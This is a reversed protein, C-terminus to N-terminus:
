IHFLRVAPALSAYPLLGRPATESAPSRCPRKAPASAVLSRRRTQGSNLTCNKNTEGGVCGFTPVIGVQVWPYALVGNNHACCWDSVIMDDVVWGCWGVGGEGEEVGGLGGGGGEM